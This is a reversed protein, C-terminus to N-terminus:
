RDVEPPDNNCGSAPVIAPGDGTDQVRIHLPGQEMHPGAGQRHCQQQWQQLQGLRYQGLQLGLGQGLGQLLGQRQWSHLCFGSLIWQLRQWHLQHMELKVM